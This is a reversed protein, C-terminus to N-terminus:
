EAIRLLEGIVSHQLQEPLKQQRNNTTVTRVKGIIEVNYFMQMPIRDLRRRPESPFLQYFEMMFDGSQKHKCTGNKGPKSILREVNYYRSLQIGHCDSFDTIICDFVLRPTKYFILTRHQVLKLGYEGPPICPLLESANNTSVAKSEANM